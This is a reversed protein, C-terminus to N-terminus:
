LTVRNSRESEGAQNVATVEYSRGDAYLVTWTTEVTENFETLVDEAGEYVRYVEADPVVDWTLVAVRPAEAEACGLVLSIALVLWIV